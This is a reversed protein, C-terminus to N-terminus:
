LRFSDYGGLLAGAGELLELRALTMIRVTEGAGMM